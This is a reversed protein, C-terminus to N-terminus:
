VPCTHLTLSSSSLFLLPYHTDLNPNPRPAAALCDPYTALQALLSLELSHHLVGVMAESAGGGSVEMCIDPNDWQNDQLTQAQTLCHQKTGSINLLQMQKLSLMRAVPESCLRPGLCDSEFAFRTVMFKTKNGRNIRCLEKAEDKSPPTIVAKNCDNCHCSTSTSLVYYFTVLLWQYCKGIILKTM